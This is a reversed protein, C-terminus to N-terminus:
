ITRENNRTYFSGGGGNKIILMVSMRTAEKQHRSRYKNVNKREKARNRKRNSNAKFTAGHQTVLIFTM